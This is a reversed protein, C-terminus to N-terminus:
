QIAIRFLTDGQILSPLRLSAAVNGDPWWSDRGDVGFVFQFWAATDAAVGPANFTVSFVDAALTGGPNTAVGCPSTTFKETRICLTVGFRAHAIRAGTIRGRITALEGSRLISPVETLEVSLPDLPVVVQTEQDSVVAIGSTIGAALVNSGVPGNMAIVGALYGSNATVRM